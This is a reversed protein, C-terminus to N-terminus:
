KFKGLLNAYFKLVFIVGEEGGVVSGLAISINIADYYFDTHLMRHYGRKVYVKNIKDEVSIRHKALIIRAPLAKWSAKAVIHHYDYADDKNDFEKYKEYSDVDEQNWVGSQEYNSGLYM